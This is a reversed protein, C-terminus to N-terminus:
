GVLANLVFKPAYCISIPEMTVDEVIKAMCECNFQKAGTGIDFCDGFPKAVIIRTECESNIGVHGWIHPARCGVDQLRDYFAAYLRLSLGEVSGIPPPTSISQLNLISAFQVWLRVWLCFKVAFSSRFGKSYLSKRKTRSVPSSGALAYACM